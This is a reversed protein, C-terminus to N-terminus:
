WESASIRYVKKTQAETYVSTAKAIADLINEAYEVAFSDETMRDNNKIYVIVRYKMAAARKGAARCFGCDLEPTKSWFVSLVM